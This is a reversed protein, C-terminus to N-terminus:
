SHEFNVRPPPRRPPFTAEWASQVKVLTAEQHGSVLAAMAFPRGNFDLYGLPLSAIPYGTAHTLEYAHQLIILSEQQGSASAIDTMSSEAPGIIVDIDYEKLIRDIGRTRGIDRAHNLAANLTGPSIKSKLAEELKDQRPYGPYTLLVLLCEDLRSVQPSSRTLISGILTSWTRLRTFPRIM